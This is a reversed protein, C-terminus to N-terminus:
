RAVRIIESEFMRFQSPGMRDNVNLRQNGIFVHVKPFVGREAIASVEDIKKQEALLAEKQQNLNKLKAPLTKKAEELKDLLAQKDQPLAGNSDIKQRYLFIVSKEIKDYSEQSTVIEEEVKKLNAALNPDVGIKISTPPAAISGFYQAEINKKAICQGGVIAGKKGQAYVSRGAMISAHFAEGSITVDRDAEIHQNEIFKVLVDQGSKILGEGSGVFGGKVVVDGGAIVKADEVNGDIEISGEARVEFGAKVTGNIRISGNFKVNGSSFDIDGKVTHIESVHLIGNKVLLEGDSTARVLNEDNEDAATGHGLVLKLDRGYLGDIENGFVNKGSPGQTPPIKRYLKDGAKASSIEGLNHYDVGGDDREMAKREAIKVYMELRAKEGTRPPIGEALIVSTIPRNDECMKTINEHKIGTTIDMASLKEAVVDPTIIKGDGQAPKYSATVRMKNDSVNIKLSADIDPM